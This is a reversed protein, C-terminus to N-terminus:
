RATECLRGVGRVDSEDESGDLIGDEVVGQRIRAYQSSFEKLRADERFSVRRLVAAPARIGM